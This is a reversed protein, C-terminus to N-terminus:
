GGRKDLLLKIGAATVGIFIGAHSFADAPLGAPVGPGVQPSEPKVGSPVYTEPDPAGALQGVEHGSFEGAAKANTVTDGARAFQESIMNTVNPTIASIEDTAAAMAAASVGDDIVAVVVADEPGGVAAGAVMLPLKEGLKEYYPKSAPLHSIRYAPKGPALGGPQVQPRVINGVITGLGNAGNVFANGVGAAFSQVDSGFNKLAATGGCGQDAGCDAAPDASPIGIGITHEAVNDSPAWTL